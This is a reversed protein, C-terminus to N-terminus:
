ECEAYFIIDAKGEQKTHRYVDTDLGGIRFGNHLYFLCAGPNDDQGITYVGRYGQEAALKKAERILQKGVHQGRCAASVKLDSLYLYKFFGPELIALGICRGGDYAGLFFDDPMEEFRYHEDPFCMETVDEPAYQLLTYDWKGDMYSPLIKGFLRFSENPLNIDAQHAADIRRIEIM